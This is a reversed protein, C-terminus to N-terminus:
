RPSGGDWAAHEGKAFGYLYMRELYGTAFMPHARGAIDLGISAVRTTMAHREAALRAVDIQWKLASQLGLEFASRLIPVTKPTVFRFAGGLRSSALIYLRGPPLKVPGAPNRAVPLTLIQAVTGGDAHLERLGRGDAESEIVVPPFVGPLSCSALLVRRFLAYRGPAGSAAIAGMDWVVARQADLNATQVFLRRGAKHEAAIRDILADTMNAAILRELPATTAVSPSFPIALPFRTRFIDRPGLHTYLYAIAADEDTGLFAFPAILAGTSVGTVADFRPRTGSKSWGNLFGVAFAGDDGGSSLALMTLGEPPVVPPIMRMAADPADAFFRVREFGGIEAAAAEVPTFPARRITECGALAAGLALMLTLQLYRFVPM